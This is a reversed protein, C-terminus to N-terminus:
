NLPHMLVHFEHHKTLVVLLTIIVQTIHYKVMLVYLLTTCMTTNCADINKSYNM